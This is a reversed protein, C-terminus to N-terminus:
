TRMIFPVAFWKGALFASSQLVTCVCLKRATMGESGRLSFPVVGKRM